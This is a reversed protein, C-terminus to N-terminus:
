KNINLRSGECKKYGLKQLENVEILSLKITGAKQGNITITYSKKM